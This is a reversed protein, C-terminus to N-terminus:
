AVREPGASSSPTAAALYQGLSSSLEAAALDFRGHGAPQKALEALWHSIDARNDRDAGPSGASPHTALHEQWATVLAAATASRQASTAPLRGLEALLARLRAEDENMRCAKGPVHDRSM